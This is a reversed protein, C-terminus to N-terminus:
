SAAVDAIPEMTILISSTLSLFGFAHEEGTAPRARGGGAEEECSESALM